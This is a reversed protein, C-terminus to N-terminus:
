ISGAMGTARGAGAVGRINTLIRVPRVCRLLGSCHAARRSCACVPVSHALADAGSFVGSLQVCIGCASSNGRFAATTLGIRVSCRVSHIDFRLYNYADVGARDTIPCDGGAAPELGPTTGGVGPSRCWCSSRGSCSRPNAGGGTWLGPKRNLWRHKREPEDDRAL